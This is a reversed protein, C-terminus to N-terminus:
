PNFSFDFLTRNKSQHIACRGPAIRFSRVRENAAHTPLLNGFHRFSTQGMCYGKGFRGPAPAVLNFGGSNGPLHLRGFDTAETKFLTKGLRKRGEQVPVNAPLRRVDRAPNM